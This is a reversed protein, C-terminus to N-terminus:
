WIFQGQAITKRMTYSQLDESIKLVNSLRLFARKKLVIGRLPIRIYSLYNYM